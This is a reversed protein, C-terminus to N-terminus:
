LKEILTKRDWVIVGNEAALEIAEDTFVGNTIVMCKDARYYGKDGIVETIAHNDVPAAYRKTNVAIRRGDKEIILDVGRRDSLSTIKCSYGDRSFYDYLFRQFEFDGMSDVDKISIRKERINLLEDQLKAREIRKIEDPLRKLDVILDKVNTYKTFSSYLIGTLLKDPQYNRYEQKKIIVDAIESFSLKQWDIGLPLEKKTYFNKAKDKTAVFVMVMEAYLTKTFSQIDFCELFRDYTKEVIVDIDQFERVANVLIELFEKKEEILKLTNEFVFLNVFVVNLAFYIQEKALWKANESKLLNKLKEKIKPTQNLFVFTNYQETCLDFNIVSQEEGNINRIKTEIKNNFAIQEKQIYAYLDRLSLKREVFIKYAKRMIDVIDADLEKTEEAFSIIPLFLRDFLRCNSQFLNLIKIDIENIDSFWSKTEETKVAISNSGSSLDDKKKDFSLSKNGQVGKNSKPAENKSVVYIIGLVVLTAIICVGVNM